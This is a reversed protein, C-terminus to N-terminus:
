ISYIHLKHSSKMSGKSVNRRMILGYIDIFGVFLFHGSELVLTMRIVINKKVNSISIDIM